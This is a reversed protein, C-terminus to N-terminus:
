YLSETHGLMDMTVGVLGETSHELPVFAGEIELNQCAILLKPITTFPILNLPPELLDSQTTLFLQLAEESFSGKPGLYGINMM